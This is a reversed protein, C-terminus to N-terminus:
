RYKRPLCRLFIDDPFRETEGSKYERGFDFLACDMLNNETGTCVMTPIYYLFSDAGSESELIPSLAMSFGFM